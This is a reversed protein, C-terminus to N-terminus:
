QEEIDYTLIEYEGEEYCPNNMSLGCQAQFEYALFRTIDETTANDPADVEVELTVKFRKTKM